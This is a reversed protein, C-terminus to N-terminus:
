ANKRPDYGAGDLCWIEFALGFIQLGTRLKTEDHEKVVPHAPKSSDILINGGKLGPPLGNEEAIARYAAIQRIDSPYTNFRGSKRDPTRTKFDWIGWGYGKICAYLDITGAYGAAEGVVTREV